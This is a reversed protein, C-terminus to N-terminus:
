SKLKMSIMRTDGRKPMRSRLMISDIDKMMRSQRETVLTSAELRGSPRFGKQFSAKTKLHKVSVMM